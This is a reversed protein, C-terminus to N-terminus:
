ATRLMDRSDGPKRCSGSRERAGSASSKSEKVVLLWDPTSRAMSLSCRSSLCTLHHSVVPHRSKIPKSVHQERQRSCCRRTTCRDKPATSASSPSTPPAMCVSVTIFDSPPDKPSPVLCETM